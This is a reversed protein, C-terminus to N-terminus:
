WLEDSRCHRRGRDGPSGPVCLLAHCHQRRHHFAYSLHILRASPIDVPDRSVVISANQGGFGFANVQIVAVDMARPARLVLDFGIEPDPTTTNATNVVKGDTMLPCRRAILSLGGSAAAAHGFHGKISTVALPKSRHRYVANIARIEPTDGIPTGTAHAYLCDVDDAVLGADDLAMRMAQAEWQGSPDPASPHFADAISGYGRVYGFIRAGRKAALDARELVFAAAGESTM